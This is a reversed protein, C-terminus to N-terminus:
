SYLSSLLAKGVPDSHFTFQEPSPKPPRQKKKEKRRGETMNGLSRRQQTKNTTYFHCTLYRCPTHLYEMLVQDSFSVAGLVTPSPPSRPFSLPFSPPLSPPISPPLSSPPSFPFLLFLLLSSSSSPTLWCRSTVRVSRVVKLNKASRSALLLSFVNRSPTTGLETQFNGPPPKELVYTQSSTIQELVLGHTPQRWRQERCGGRAGM